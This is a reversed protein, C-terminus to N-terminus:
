LATKTQLSEMNEKGFCNMPQLHAILIPVLELQKKSDAVDEYLTFAQVMFEYAFIEEKYLDGISAAHLFLKLASIRTDEGTM